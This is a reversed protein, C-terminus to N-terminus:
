HAPQAPHDSRRGGRVDPYLHLCVADLCHRSEDFECAYSLLNRSSAHFLEQFQQLAVYSADSTTDGRLRCSLGTMPSVEGQPGPACLEDLRGSRDLTAVHDSTGQFRM